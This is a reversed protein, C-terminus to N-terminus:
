EYHIIIHIYIYIYIYINITLTQTDVLPLTIVRDLGAAYDALRGKSYRAMYMIISFMYYENHQNLFQVMALYILVDSVISLIILNLSM